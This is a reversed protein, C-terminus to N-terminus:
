RTFRSANFLATQVHHGFYGCLSRNGEGFLKGTKREYPAPKKTGLKEASTVKGIVIACIILLRGLIIWYYNLLM